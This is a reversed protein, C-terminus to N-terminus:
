EKTLMPWHLKKGWPNYWFMADWKEDCFTLMEYTANMEQYSHKDIIITIIGWQFKHTCEISNTQNCTYFDIFLEVSIVV